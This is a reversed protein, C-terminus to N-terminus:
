GARADHVNVYTTKRSQPLRITKDLEAPVNPSPPSCPDLVLDKLSSLRLRWDEAPSVGSWDPRFLCCVIITAMFLLGLLFGEPDRVARIVVNAWFQSGDKRVRWGYDEFRGERLATELERECHGSAM